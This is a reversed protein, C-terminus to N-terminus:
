QIMEIEDLKYGTCILDAGKYTCVELAGPIISIDIVTSPPTFLEGDGFFELPEGDLSNLVLQDTEFSILNKDNRPYSGSLMMLTCKMLDFRNEHTFITVNFKGDDNRTGPAVRFKGGIYEQNNILILGTTVRPDVLPSDKSEILVRRLNFPRALMQQAYVVSYTHKGFTKMVKKFQPHEKRLQDVTKAVEHAMGLGGNTVMYRDNVKITDVKKTSQANFIHSIKKLNASAGMEKAFDNATGTPIVMLKINKNILNQSITNTTGDGGVAFIYDTGEELDKQIRANLAELGDPSHIDVQHRFFFKQFEEQSYGTSESRSAKPNLYISIKAM